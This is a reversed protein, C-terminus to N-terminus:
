IYQTWVCCCVFFFLPLSFVYIMKALKNTNKKHLMNKKIRYKLKMKYCKKKINKNLQLENLVSTYSDFTHTSLYKMCKGRSIMIKNLPVRSHLWFCIVYVCKKNNAAYVWLYKMFTYNVHMKITIYNFSKDVNLM